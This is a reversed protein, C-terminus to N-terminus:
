AHTLPMKSAVEMLSIPVDYISYGLGKYGRIRKESMRKLVQVAEDVYDYVIVDRKAPYLRHLRGVYQALTGKWAIPMVLFLADLRADDFAEGVYRGTAILVREDTSPVEALRQGVASSRFSLPARGAGPM